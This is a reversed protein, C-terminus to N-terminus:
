RLFFCVTPLSMMPASRPGDVIASTGRAPSALSESKQSSSAEPAWAMPRRCRRISRCLRAALRLRVIVLATADLLLPLFLQAPLRALAVLACASALRGSFALQGGMAPTQMALVHMLDDRDAVRDNQFLDRVFRPLPLIALAYSQSCWPHKYLHESAGNCARAAGQEFHGRLCGFQALETMAAATDHFFRQRLAPM